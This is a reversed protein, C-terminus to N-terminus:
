RIYNKIKKNLEKHKETCAVYGKLIISKSKEFDLADIDRVDPEILVNPKYRKLIQSATSVGMIDISQMIINFIGPSKFKENFKLFKSISISFSSRKEDRDIIDQIKSSELEGEHHSMYKLNSKKVVDPNLNVAIIRDAGMHSVVDVPLPNSVGGDILLYKDYKVPTLLGPISMSARLADILSGKNFLISKGTFYDTAVITLPKNLDEIRTERPIFKCIFEIIKDGEIFGSKPLVPDMLKIVDTMNFEILVNKLEDLSDTLYFAAAIAGISSGALYDLKIGMSELYKIISIHAVGKAGGSGLALGIKYKKFYKLVSM